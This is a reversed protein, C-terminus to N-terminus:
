GVILQSDSCVEISSVRQRVILGLGTIVADYEVDNNTAPFEFRPSFELEKSDPRIM